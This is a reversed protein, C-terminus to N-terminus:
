VALVSSFCRWLSFMWGASPACNLQVLCLHTKMNHSHSTTSPWVLCSPPQHMHLVPLVSPKKRKANPWTCQWLLRGNGLCVNLASRWTSFTLNSSNKLLQISSVRLDLILFNSYYKLGSQQIRAVNGWHPTLWSESLELESCASM